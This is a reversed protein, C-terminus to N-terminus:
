ARRPATQHLAYSLVTVFVVTGGLFATESPVEHLFVYALFIAVPMDASALVSVESASILKAGETWLVAALGFCLGFMVLLAFDSISVPSVFFLGLLVVQASALGGALVVDLNRFARVLVAYVANLFMMMFALMDGALQGQSPAGFVAIIVGITCLTAASLAAATFREQLIIWGLAAAAFPVLSYILSVNAVSTLKFAGIFTLSSLCGVVSLLWLQWTVMSALLKQTGGSRIHCYVIIVLGGWVGRWTLTTWVDAHVSKVFVGSSGFLVSALLVLIIGRTRSRRMRFDREAKNM